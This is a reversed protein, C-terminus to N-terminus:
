LQSVPMNNEFFVEHRNLINNQFNKPLRVWDHLEVLIPVNSERIKEVLNHFLDIPIAKLHPDRMVLDLDSGNHAKGNVRSGYAWIQVPMDITSFIDILARKYKEKLIM